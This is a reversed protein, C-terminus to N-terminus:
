AAVEDGFPASDNTTTDEADDTDNVDAGILHRYTRILASVEDIARESGFLLEGSGLQLQHTAGMVPYRQRMEKRNIVTELPLDKICSWYQKMLESAVEHALDILAQRASAENNPLNRADRCIRFYKSDRNDGDPLIVKGGIAKGAKRLASDTSKDAIIKTCLDAYLRASSRDLQTM